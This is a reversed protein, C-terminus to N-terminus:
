ESRTGALHRGGARRRVTAAGGEVVGVRMRGRDRGRDRGKGRGSAKGGATRRHREGRSAGSCVTARASAEEEGEAGRM